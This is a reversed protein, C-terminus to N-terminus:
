QSIANQVNCVAVRCGFPGNTVRRGNTCPVNPSPARDHRLVSATQCRPPWQLCLLRQQRPPWQHCPVTRHRHGKTIYHRKMVRRRYRKALRHGISIHCGNTVHRRNIYCAFHMCKVEAIYKYTVYPSASSALHPSTLRPPM